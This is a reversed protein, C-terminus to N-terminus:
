EKVEILVENRRFAPLVFPADYGAFAAQSVPTLNQAQIWQLLQKTKEQRSQRDAVGSYRIVAYKKAAQKVIKVEPNLPRPTTKLTFNSPMVFSMTWTKEDNEEMLVPATMPIKQADSDDGDNEEILVPATMPIKTGDESQTLVPSTMAVKTRSTNQGDIYQFLPKFGKRSAKDWSGTTEIQALIMPAYRRLEYEGAEQLLTYEPEKVEHDGFAFCGNLLAASSLALSLGLSKFMKTIPM